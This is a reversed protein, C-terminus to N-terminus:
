IKTRVRYALRGLGLVQLKEEHRDHSKLCEDCFLLIVKHGFQGRYYEQWTAANPCERDTIHSACKDAIITSFWGVRLIRKISLWAGHMKTM